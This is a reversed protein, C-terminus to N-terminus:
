SKAGKKEGKKVTPQVRESASVEREFDKVDVQYMGALEVLCEAYRGKGEAYLEFELLGETVFGLLQNEKLRDLYNSPAEEVGRRQWISELGTHVLANALMRMLKKDPGRDEVKKVIAAIALKTVAARRELKKAKERREEASLKPEDDDNVAAGPAANVPRRRRITGVEDLVKGLNQKAVLEVVAKSATRGLFLHQEPAKGLLERYTRQKVDEHCVADARLYPTDERLGQETFLKKAETDDLCKPGRNHLGDEVKRLWQLDNKQAFCPPNTCLYENGGEGFLEPQAGSRLTCSECDGATAYLSKDATDFTAKKLDLRYRARIAEQAERVSKPKGDPGPALLEKLAQGQMSQPVTALDRAVTESLKGDWCARKAEPTLKALNIISFATARSIGMEEAIQAVATGADKWRRYGEARDLFHFGEVDGNEHLQRSIVEADTALKTVRVPVETLGALRAAELRRRGCLVEYRPAGDGGFLADAASSVPRVLLPNILGSRKIDDALRKVGDADFTSRPNLQSPTLRNLAAITEM